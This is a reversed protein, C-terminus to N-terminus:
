LLSVKLISPFIINPGRSSFAAMMPSPKVKLETKAKTLYAMPKKTRRLYSYVYEGDTFNLNSAALVHPLAVVDNGATKDNGLVLGVASANSAVQGQLAASSYKHKQCVLIKGNVKKADLTGANCSKADTADAKALKADEANILPYFKQSPLGKPSLSSGKLHKKDGLAVYTAFSRDITSAAVTIMWPVVSAVTEPLPGANGASNIAVIGRAAAHFSGVSFSDSFLERPKKPNASVSLVDVNDSIAAEFGALIDADFCGGRITESFNPWCVKYAAVRAKPSGGKATGFGNGSISVGPVFSGGATSLTHSGHGEMDRANTFQPKIKVDYTAEFGKYFTRAGILKTNCPLKSSGHLNNLQCVGHGRWKTPIPGIGKDNFSESEPWVGTDLNGIITDEGYRAKEWISDKPVIGNEELGLFQWSRTTQLKRKKNLFVCVVKPNESCM